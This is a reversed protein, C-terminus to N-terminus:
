PLKLRGLPLSVIEAPRRKAGIELVTQIAHDYSASLPRWSKEAINFFGCTQEDLTRFYLAVRGLRFVNVLTPQGELDITERAVEITRGYDAEVMLAELEKRLKENLAIDPDDIIEQLRKLRQEREAPLFPLDDQYFGQLRALVEQLFPRIEAKIQDIRELEQTKATVKAQLDQHEEQLLKHRQQLEQQEQQLRNYLAIKKEKEERWQEEGQQVNRRISIAQEVPKEIRNEVPNDVAGCPMAMLVGGTVVLATLAKLGNLM